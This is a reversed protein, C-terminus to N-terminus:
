TGDDIKREEEIMESPILNILWGGGNWNLKKQKRGNM